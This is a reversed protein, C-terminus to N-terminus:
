PKIGLLLSDLTDSQTVGSAAGTPNLLYGVNTAVTAKAIAAPDVAVGAPPVLYNPVVITTNASFVHPRGNADLVVVQTLIQGRNSGAAGPSRKTISVSHQFQAIGSPVGTATPNIVYVAQNMSEGRLQATAVASSVSYVGTPMAMQASFSNLM